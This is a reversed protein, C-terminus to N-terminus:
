RGGSDLGTLRKRGDQVCDKEKGKQGGNAGEGGRLSCLGRATNRLGM